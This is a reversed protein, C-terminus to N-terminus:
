LATPAINITRVPTSPTRPHLRCSFRFGITLRVVAVFVCCLLVAACCCPLHLRRCCLLQVLAAASENLVIM